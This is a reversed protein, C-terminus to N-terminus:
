PRPAWRDPEPGAPCGAGGEDAAAGRHRRLRVRRCPRLVRRRRREGRGGFLGFNAEVWSTYSGPASSFGPRCSSRSSSWLDACPRTPTCCSLPASCRPSRAAPVSTRCAPRHERHRVPADNGTQTTTAVLGGAFYFALYRISGFADEVNKGFVALFLMNGLIHDWSGHLFMSTIWGVEWPEPGHSWSNVTCPYFSAHFVASVSPAPARLLALGRLQRRHDRHQRDAAAARATWRLAPARIWDRVVAADPPGPM